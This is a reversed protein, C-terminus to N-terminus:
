TKAEGGDRRVLAADRYRRALQVADVLIGRAMAEDSDDPGDNMINIFQLLKEAMSDRETEAAEARALAADHATLLAAIASPNCAAIFEINKDDQRGLGIEIIPMERTMGDENLQCKAYNAGAMRAVDPDIVAGKGCVKAAKGLWDMEQSGFGLVVTGAESAVIKEEM